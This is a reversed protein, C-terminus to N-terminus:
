GSVGRKCSPLEGKCNLSYLTPVSLSLFEAAQSITFLEDKGLSGQLSNQDKQLITEIASVKELLISVAEPLDNFNITKM